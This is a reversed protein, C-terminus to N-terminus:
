VVWICFTIMLVVHMNIFILESANLLRAQEEVLAEVSLWPQICLLLVSITLSLLQLLKM